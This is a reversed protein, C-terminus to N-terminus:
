WTAGMMRKAISKYILHSLKNTIAAEMTKRFPLAIAGVRADSAV